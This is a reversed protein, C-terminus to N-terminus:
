SWKCLRATQQYMFGGDEPFKRGWNRLDPPNEDLKGLSMSEYFTLKARESTNFSLVPHMIALEPCEPFMAEAALRELEYFRELGVVQIIIWRDQTTKVTGYAAIPAESGLSELQKTMAM